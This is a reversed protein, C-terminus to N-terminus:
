EFKIQARLEGYWRYRTANQVEAATPTPPTLTGTLTKTHLTIYYVGNLLDQEKVKVGDALLTGSFSGTTGYLGKATGAGLTASTYTGNTFQQIYTYPTTTDAFPRFTGLATWSSFAPNLANYGSPAAASIRIAIVSDTLGSWSIKYTLLRTEKTYFVDLTGLAASTSIPNVQAGTVPIGKKEYDTTKKKEANKECSSILLALGIVLSALATPKTLNM